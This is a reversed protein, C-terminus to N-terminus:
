GRLGIPSRKIYLPLTEMCTFLETSLGGKFIFKNGTWRGPSKLHRTPVNKWMKGIKRGGGGGGGLMKEVM